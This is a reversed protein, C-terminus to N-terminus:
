RLWPITQGLNLAKLSQLLDSQETPSLPMLPPRLHWSGNGFRYSMLSKLSAAFPPYKELITRAATLADQDAEAAEGKLFARYVRVALPAFVNAGATICGAAGSRVGSLLLKDTGVFVRLQPFNQCYDQAHALDGSSDKVGGLKKEDHALLESILDNSIPIGTVQPIHYLFLTGGEPIGEDMVRRFYEALGPTSFKKFYFPPVTVVAHVGLEFARATLRITDPLSACGTGAMITCKGAAQLGAQIIEVQEEYSTSPGEGTTGLLLLGDVGEKILAHVLCQLNKLDPKDDATFPTLVATVVGRFDTKIM